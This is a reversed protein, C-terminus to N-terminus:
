KNGKHEKRSGEVRREKRGSRQNKRYNFAIKLNHLEYVV